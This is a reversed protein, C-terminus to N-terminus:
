WGSSSRWDKGDTQVCEDSVILLERGFAALVTAHLRTLRPIAGTRALKPRGQRRHDLIVAGRLYLRYLRPGAADPFVNTNDGRFGRISKPPARTAAHDGVARVPCGGVGSRPPQCIQARRYAFFQRGGSEHAPLGARRPWTCTSETSSGCRTCAARTRGSADFHSILKPNEPKSIDFLDFARPKMNVASTQYAVAMIDGVLTWPISRVKAHPLETRCWWAPSEEPDTFTAPFEEARVEHALLPIRRGDRTPQMGARASGRLRAARTRSLKMNFLSRKIPAPQSGPLTQAM